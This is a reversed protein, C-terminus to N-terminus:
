RATGARLTIAETIDVDNVKFLHAGVRRLGDTLSGKRGQAFIAVREDKPLHFCHQNLM